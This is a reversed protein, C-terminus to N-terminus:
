QTSCHSELHCELLGGPNRCMTKPLIFFLKFDSNYNLPYFNAWYHVKHSQSSSLDVLCINEKIPTRPVIDKWFPPGRGFAYPDKVKRLCFHKSTKFDSISDSGNNPSKGKFVLWGLLFHLWRNNLALKFQLLKKGEGGEECPRIQVNLTPAAAQKTQEKFAHRVM